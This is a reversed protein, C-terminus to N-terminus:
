EGLDSFPPRGDWLPHVGPTSHHYSLHEAQSAFLALNELRNDAHQGNHHHITEGPALPRNLHAAVLRRALRQGQRWPRYHTRRHAYYCAPCCYVRGTRQARVRWRARRVLQGCQACHRVLVRRRRQEPPMAARIRKWIAVRSIGAAAGLVALPEGARYRAIVEEDPLQCAM